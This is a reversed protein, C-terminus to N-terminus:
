PNCADGHDMAKLLIQPHCAEGHDVRKLFIQPTHGDGHVMCELLIRSDGVKADPAQAKQLRQRQSTLGSSQSQHLIGMKQSPKSMSTTDHLPTNHSGNNEGQQAITNFQPDALLLHSVMTPPVIFERCEDRVDNHTEGQLHLKEIDGCEVATLLYQMALMLDTTAMSFPCTLGSEMNGSLLFPVVMAKFKCKKFKLLATSRSLAHQQYQNITESDFHIEVKGEVLAHILYTPLLCHVPNESDSSQLAFCVVGEMKAVAKALSPFLKITHEPQKGSNFL